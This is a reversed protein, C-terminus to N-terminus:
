QDHVAVVVKSADTLAIVLRGDQLRVHNSMTEFRTTSDIQEAEVPSLDSPPDDPYSETTVSGTTTSILFSGGYQLYVNADTPTSFTTKIDSSSYPVDLTVFVSQWHDPSAHSAYSFVTGENNRYAIGLVGASSISFKPFAWFYSNIAESVEHRIWDASNAEKRLIIVKKAIFDTCALYLSSGCSALTVDAFGSNDWYGPEDIAGTSAIALPPSFNGDLDSQAYFLTNNDRNQYVLFAIGDHSDMFLDGIWGEPTAISQFSWPLRTARYFERDPTYPNSSDLQRVWYGDKSAEFPCLYHPGWEKIDTSVEIKYRRNSDSDFDLRLDVLSSNWDQPIAMIKLNTQAGIPLGLLLGCTALLITKMKQVM